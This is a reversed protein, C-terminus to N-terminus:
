AAEQNPVFVTKVEVRGVPRIAIIQVKSIDDQEAYEHAHNAAEEPSSYIDCLATLIAYQQGQNQAYAAGFGPMTENLTKLAVNEAQLSGINGQLLGIYSELEVSCEHLNLPYKTCPLILRNGVIGCFKRTASSISELDNEAKQLAGQLNAIIQEQETCRKQLEGVMGGATKAVVAAANCCAKDTPMGCENSGAEVPMSSLVADPKPPEIVTVAESPPEAIYGGVVHSVSADSGINEGVTPQPQESINNKHWTKGKATLLYAPQNTIDDMTRELLGDKCAAKVNDHLSKRVIGTTFGLDDMTSLGNTAIADIIQKRKSTM